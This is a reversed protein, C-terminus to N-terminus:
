MDMKMVLGDKDRDRDRKMQIGMLSCLCEEEVKGCTPLPKSFSWSSLCLVRTGFRSISVHVIDEPTDSLNMSLVGKSFPEGTSLQENTRFILKEITEPTQLKNSLIDTEKRPDLLVSFKSLEKQPMKPFEFQAPAQGSGLRLLGM